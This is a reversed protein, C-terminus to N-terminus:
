VCTHYATMPPKTNQPPLSNISTHKYQSQPLSSLFAEKKAITRLIPLLLSFYFSLVGCDGAGLCNVLCSKPNIAKNVLVHFPNQLLTQENQGYFHLTVTPSIQVFIIHFTLDAPNFLKSFINYRFNSISVFYTQPSEQAM